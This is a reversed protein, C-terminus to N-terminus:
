TRMVEALFMGVEGDKQAGRQDHEGEMGRIDERM